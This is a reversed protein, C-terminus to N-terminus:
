LSTYCFRIKDSFRQVREQFSIEGGSSFDCIDTKCKFCFPGISEKSQESWGAM